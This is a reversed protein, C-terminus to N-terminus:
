AGMVTWNTGNYWGIVEHSGSGAITAGWTATTSDTICAIMGLVPLAPLAAFIVPQSYVAVTGSLLDQAAVKRSLWGGMGDPIAVEFWTSSGAYPPTGATLDIITENAM